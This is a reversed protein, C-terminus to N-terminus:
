EDCRATSIDQDLCPRAVKAGALWAKCIDMRRERGAVVRDDYRLARQDVASPLQARERLSRPGHQLEATRRSGGQRRDINDLVAQLAALHQFDLTDQVGGGVVQEVGHRRLPDAEVLRQSMRLCAAEGF